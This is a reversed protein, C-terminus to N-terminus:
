FQVGMGVRFSLSESQVKSTEDNILPILLPVNKYQLNVEAFLLDILPVKVAVDAFIPIGQTAMTESTNTFNGDEIIPTKYSGGLGIGAVLSLETSSAILAGTGLYLGFTSGSVDRIAQFLAAEDNSIKTLKSKSNTSEYLVAGLEAWLSLPNFLARIGGRADIKTTSISQSGAVIQEKVLDIAPSTQSSEFGASVHSKFNFNSIRIPTKPFVGSVRAGFGKQNFSPSIFKNLGLGPVTNQTVIYQPIIFVIKDTASFFSASHSAAGTRLARIQKGRYINCNTNGDIVIAAARNTKSNKKGVKATGLRKQNTDIIEVYDGTAFKSNLIEVLCSTTSKTKKTRSISSKGDTTAKAFAVQPTFIAVFCIQTLIFSISFKRM